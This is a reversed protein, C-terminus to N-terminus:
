SKGKLSIAQIQKQQLLIDNRRQGEEQNNSQRCSASLAELIYFIGKHTHM